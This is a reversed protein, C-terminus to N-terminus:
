LEITDQLEVSQKPYLFMEAFNRFEYWFDMLLSFLFIGGLFLHLLWQRVFSFSNLPNRGFFCVYVIFWLCHMFLINM